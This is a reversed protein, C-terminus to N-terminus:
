HEYKCGPWTPQISNNRFIFQNLTFHDEHLAMITSQTYSFVETRHKIDIQSSAHFFDRRIIIREEVTEEEMTQM